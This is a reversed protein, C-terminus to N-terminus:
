WILTYRTPIPVDLTINTFFIDFKVVNEFEDVGVYLNNNKMLRLLTETTDRISKFEYKSVDFSIKRPMNKERVLAVCSLLKSSNHTVLLTCKRM